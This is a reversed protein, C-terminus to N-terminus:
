KQEAIRRNELFNEYHEWYVNSRSDSIQKLKESAPPTSLTYFHPVIDKYIFFIYIVWITFFSFVLPLKGPLKKIREKLSIVEGNYQYKRKVIALIAFLVAMYFTITIPIISAHWRNAQFTFGVLSILSILIFLFIMLSLAAGKKAEQILNRIAYIFYLLFIFFLCFLCFISLLRGQILWGIGEFHYGIFLLGLLFHESFLYYAKTKNIGFNAKFYIISEAIFIIGILLDSIFIITLGYENQAFSAFAGVVMLGFLIYRINNLAKM